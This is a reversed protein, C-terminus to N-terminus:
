PCADTTGPAGVASWIAYQLPPPPSSHCRRPQLRSAVSTVSLAAASAAPERVKGSQYGERRAASRLRAARPWYLRAGLKAGSHVGGQQAGRQAIAGGAARVPVRPAAKRLQSQQAGGGQVSRQAVAGGAALVPARAHGKAEPRM